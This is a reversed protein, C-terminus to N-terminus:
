SEIFSTEIIGNYREKFKSACTLHGIAVKPGLNGLLVNLALMPIAIESLYPIRNLDWDQLNYSHLFIEQNTYRKEWETIYIDDKFNDFAYELASDIKPYYSDPLSQSGDYGSIRFELIISNVLRYLQQHKSYSFRVNNQTLVEQIKDIKRIVHSDFPNRIDLFGLISDCLVRELELKRM